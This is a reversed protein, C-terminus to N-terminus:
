MEGGALGSCFSRERGAFELDVDNSQFYAMWRPARQELDPGSITETREDFYLCYMYSIIKLWNWTGGLAVSSLGMFKPM